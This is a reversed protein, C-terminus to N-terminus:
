LIWEPEMGVEGSCPVLVYMRPARLKFEVQVGETYSRRDHHDFVDMQSYRMDATTLIGPLVM